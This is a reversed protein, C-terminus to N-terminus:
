VMGFSDLRQIRLSEKVKPLTKIKSADEKSVQIPKEKTKGVPNTVLQGPSETKIKDSYSKLTKSQEYLVSFYKAAGDVFPKIYQDIMKGLFEVVPQVIYKLPTILIQAIPSDAAKILKNLAEAAKTPLSFIFSFAQSLAKLVGLITDFLAGLVEGGVRLMLSSVATAALGSGGKGMFTTISSSLAPGAKVAAKGAVDVIFHETNHAIGGAFTSSWKNAAAHLATSTAGAAPVAAKPATIVDNLGLLMSVSGAVLLPAGASFSQVAKATKSLEMDSFKDWAKKMKTSGVYVEIAGALGLMIPGAVQGAAPIFSVIGSLLQLFIAGCTLPDNKVFEAAASTIKKSFEFAKKAGDSISDWTSAASSAASAVASKASSTVSNWASNVGDWFQENLIKFSENTIIFLNGGKFLIQHGDSELNYIPADDAFWEKRNEYLLGLEYVSYSKELLAKDSNSEFLATGFIKSFDKLDLGAKIGENLFFPNSFSEYKTIM